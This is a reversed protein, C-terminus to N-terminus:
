IVNIDRWRGSFETINEKKSVTLRFDDRSLIINHDKLYIRFSIDHVGHGIDNAIYNLTDSIENKSEALQISGAM